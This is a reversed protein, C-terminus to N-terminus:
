LAERKFVNDLPAQEIRATYLTFDWRATFVNDAADRAVAVGGPENSRAISQARAGSSALALMIAVLRQKM